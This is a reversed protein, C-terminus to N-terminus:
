TGKGKTGTVGIINKSRCTEFFIHQITTAKAWFSRDDGYTQRLNKYSVVSYIIKDYTEIGQLYSLDAVTGTMGPPKDIPLFQLKVKDSVPPFDDRHHENVILYEHEPGFFRYASQGEVGWGVIAIKMVM